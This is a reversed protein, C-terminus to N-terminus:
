AVEELSNAITSPVSPRIDAMGQHAEALLEDYLDFFHQKEEEGHKAFYESLRHEQERQKMAAERAYNEAYKKMDVRSRVKQRKQADVAATDLMEVGRDVTALMRIMSTLLATLAGFLASLANRSDAHM